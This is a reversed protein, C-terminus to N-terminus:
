RRLFKSMARNKREKMKKKKLETNRMQVGKMRMATCKINDWFTESIKRVTKREEGNQKM